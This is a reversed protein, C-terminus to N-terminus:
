HKKGGLAEIFGVMDRSITTMDYHELFVARARGGMAAASATTRMLADILSQPDGARYNAGIGHTEILEAAEGPLANVIALSNAMYEFIKNPLGQTAERIYPMLGIDAGAFMGRLEEPGCWGRLRLNPLSAAASRLEAAREGDGAVDFRLPLGREAAIRAASVLTEADFSRGFTGAFVVTCDGARKGREVPEVDDGQYGLPFVARHPPLGGHNRALTEAWDLYAPSIAVLGDALAFAGGIADRIPEFGLKALPRILAPVAAVIVDPSLDRVDFILRVGNRRTWRVVHLAVPITPFCCWILEPKDTDLAATLRRAFIEHHAIRQVSINRPYGPAHLLRLEFGTRKAEATLTAVDRPKKLQHNWDSSWWTVQHGAAVLAHALGTM